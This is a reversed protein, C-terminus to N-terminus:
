SAGPWPWGAIARRPSAQGPGPWSASGYAALVAATGDTSGDDVVIIERQPYTQALVSDIARGVYAAYNLTPIVVSVLRSV